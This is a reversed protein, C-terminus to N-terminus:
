RKLTQKTRHTKVFTYLTYSDSSCNLFLINADGGFTGKNVKTLLVRGKGESGQLWQGSNQGWLKAKQM